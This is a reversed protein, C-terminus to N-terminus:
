SIGLTHGNDLFLQSSTGHMLQLNNTQMAEMDLLSINIENQFQAYTGPWRFPKEKGDQTEGVKFQTLVEGIRKIELDTLKLHGQEFCSIRFRSGNILSALKIQSIRRTKRKHKLELGNMCGGESQQQQQQQQYHALLGLLWFEDVGPSLTSSAGTLVLLDNSGFAFQLL